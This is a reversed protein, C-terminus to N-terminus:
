KNFERTLRRLSEKVQMLDGVIVFNRFSYEGPPIGNQDDRRFVCNWKVVKEHTFRFRGYGASAYGPSPQDPSYIGMAYSGNKTALVVPQSQEGPGDDLPKLDGESSSFKWFAEFEAPMYGTVAEFVAHRHFEGVPLSFTVNYQIVSDLDRYGIQLRKTLLHDSLVTQNKASNGESKEDPALWFAMQSSTQLLNNRAVLHLLRSSSHRGDGDRRSGAETPNFTEATLPTGVDFNAASQLQRGHDASDIFEHGNWKLSHIAGALRSTTEIVIENPGTRSRITADASLPKEDSWSEIPHFCFSGAFILLPWLTRRPSVLQSLSKTRRSSM